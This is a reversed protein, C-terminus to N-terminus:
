ERTVHALGSTALHETAIYGEVPTVDGLNTGPYYRGRATEKGPGKRTRLSFTEGTVYVPTQQTRAYPIIYVIKAIKYNLIIKLMPKVERKNYKKFNINRIINRPYLKIQKFKVNIKDSLVFGYYLILFKSEILYINFYVIFLQYFM